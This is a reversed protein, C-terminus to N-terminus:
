AAYARMWDILQSRTRDPNLEKMNEPIFGGSELWDALNRAHEGCSVFRGEAHALQFESFTVEPDMM